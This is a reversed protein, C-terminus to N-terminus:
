SFIDEFAIAKAAQEQTLKGATRRLYTDNFNMLRIEQLVKTRTM